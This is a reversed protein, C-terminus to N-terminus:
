ASKDGLESSDFVENKDGKFREWDIVWTLDWVFVEM